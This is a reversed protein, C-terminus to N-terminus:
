ILPASALPARGLSRDGAIALAALIGRGVMAQRQEEAGRLRDLVLGDAEIIWGM